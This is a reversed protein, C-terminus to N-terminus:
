REGVYPYGHFGPPTPLPIYINDTLREAYGQFATVYSNASVGAPMALLSIEPHNTWAIQM